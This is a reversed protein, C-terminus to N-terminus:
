YYLLIFCGQNYSKINKIDLKTNNNKILIEADGSQFYLNLTELNAEKLRSEVVERVYKLILDLRCLKDIEM